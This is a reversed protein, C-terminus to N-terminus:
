GFDAGLSLNCLSMGYCLWLEMFDWFMVWLFIWMDHFGLLIVLEIDKNMPIIWLISLQNMSISDLSIILFDLLFGLPLGMSDGHFGLSIGM